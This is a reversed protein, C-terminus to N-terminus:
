NMTVVDGKSDKTVTIKKSDMYVRAAKEAKNLQEKTYITAKRVVRIDQVYNHAQRAKNLTYGVLIVIMGVGVLLFELVAHMHQRQVM